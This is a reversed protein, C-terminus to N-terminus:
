THLQEGSSSGDRSQEMCQVQEMAHTVTPIVTELQHKWSIGIQNADTAFLAGSGAAFFAGKKGSICIQNADTASLAGSGAAFFHAREAM